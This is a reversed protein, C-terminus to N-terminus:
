GRGAGDPVAGDSVASISRALQGAVEDVVTEAPEIWSAFRGGVAEAVLLKARDGAVGWRDLFWTLVQACHVYWADGAGTRDTVHHILHVAGREWVSAQDAEPLGALPYRDFSEALDELWGRWEVLAEAVRDVTEAPTSVSHNACCWSAVPGGGFDGEDMAWRWGCAWPGFREVVARMMADAWADGDERAWGFGEEGGAAGPPRTPVASAPALARVADRAADADFGHRGPDVDDWNLAGPYFSYDVGRAHWPPDAAEM